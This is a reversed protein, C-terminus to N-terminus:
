KKQQRKYLLNFKLNALSQIRDYIDEYAKTTNELDDFDKLLWLSHEQFTANYESRTLEKTGDFYDKVTVTREPRTEEYKTKM